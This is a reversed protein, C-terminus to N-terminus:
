LSSFELLLEPNLIVAPNNQDNEQHDSDKEETEIMLLDRLVIVILICQLVRAHDRSWLDNQVGFLGLCNPIRLHFFGWFNYSVIWFRNLKLEQLCIKSM